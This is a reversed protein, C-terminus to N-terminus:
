ANTFAVRGIAPRRQAVRRSAGDEFAEGLTRVGDALEGALQRDAVGGDRLVELHQLAGPQDDVAMRALVADLPDVRVAEGLQAGLEVEGGDRVTMM